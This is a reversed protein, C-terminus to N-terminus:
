NPSNLYQSNFSFFIFYFSCLTYSHPGCITSFHQTIVFSHHHWIPHPTKLSSYHTILSSFQTILSPHHFSLSSHGNKKFWVLGLDSQAKKRGCRPIVNGKHSGKIRLLPSIISVTWTRFSCLPRSFIEWLLWLPHFSIRTEQHSCVM